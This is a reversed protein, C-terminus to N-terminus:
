DFDLALGGAVARRSAEAADLGARRFRVLMEGVKLGAAHLDIVPRPGVHDTTVTMYGPPVRRPPIKAVGAVSLADDDVRGCIHVPAAGTEALWGAPLGGEGIAPRDSRHDAVVVADCGELSRRLAPAATVVGLSPRLGTATAGNAQLAELIPGLFPPEAIVLFRGGLIEIEHELLLKVALLGVYRFTEVRPDTECTGLVPIGRARCASLDIDAARFEWPEWMLAVAADAPLARLLAADIPRVFGLNTVLSCAAVGPHARDQTIEIRDAINLEKAWGGVYDAVEAAKGHASDRTLAVVPAAGALAATLATTAFSGSAAETLVGIGDLDLELRGIAARILREARRRDTVRRM